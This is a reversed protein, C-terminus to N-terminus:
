LGAKWDGVCVVPPNMVRKAPALVLYALAGGTLVLRVAAAVVMAMAGGNLGALPVWMACALANAGVMLAYLPVQIRFRRASMIGVTFVSAVCHIATALMLETFVRSHVAYELGYILRLLREGLVQAVVLGSLGLVGSLALLKMLFARFEPFQQGAYLRSLRPIACHGLSDSVLTIAVTTYALASFIGLQYDGMWAHIFYRPMNLNISALTTV